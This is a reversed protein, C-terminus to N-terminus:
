KKKKSNKVYQAPTAYKSLTKFEVAKNFNLQNMKTLNSKILLTRPHTLGLYNKYIEYALKFYGNAPLYSELFYSVVGLNNYITATDPTDGGINEERIKKAMLYARMAWEYEQIKVFLEGIFCYVLARDPDVLLLKDTYTLADSIYKMAMIDYDLSEYLNTFILSFYLSTQFDIQSMDKPLNDQAKELRRIANEFKGEVQDQMVEILIEFVKIPTKEPIMLVEKILSPYVNTNPLIEKYTHKILRHTLTEIRIPGLYKLDHKNEDPFEDMVAEYPNTNGKDKQQRQVKKARAIQANEKAAIRRENEEEVEVQLRDVPFKAPIIKYPNTSLTNSHTPKDNAFQMINIDLPPLVDDLTKLFDELVQVDDKTHERLKAKNLIESEPLFDENDIQENNEDIKEQNKVESDKKLQLIEEFFFKIREPFSINETSPLNLAFISIIIILTSYSFNIEKLTLFFKNLIEVVEEENLKKEFLLRFDNEDNENTLSIHIFIKSLNALNESNFNDFFPLDFYMNNLSLTNMYFIDKEINELCFKKFINENISNMYDSLYILADSTIIKKVFENKFDPLSFQFFKQKEERQKLMINIINNNNDIIEKRNESIQNVEEISLDSIISNEMSNKNIQVRYVYFLLIFYQKMDIENGNPNLQNLFNLYEFINYGCTDMINYEFLLRIFNFKTITPIEKEEDEDRTYSHFIEQLTQIVSNETLSEM